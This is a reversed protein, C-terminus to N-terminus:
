LYYCVFCEKYELKALRIHSIESILDCCDPPMALDATQTFVM